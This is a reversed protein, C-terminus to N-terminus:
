GAAALIEGFVPTLRTATATDANVVSVVVLDGTHGDVVTGDRECVTGGGADREAGGFDTCSSSIDALVADADAPDVVDVRVVLPDGAEQPAEDSTFLCATVTVEELTELPHDKRTEQLTFALSTASSLEAETLPCGDGGAEGTAAPPGSARAGSRDGESGCATMVAGACLFAVVVGVRM